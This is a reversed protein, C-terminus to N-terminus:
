RRFKYLIVVANDCRVTGFMRICAASWLSRYVIYPQPVILSAFGNVGSACQSRLGGKPLSRIHCSQDLRKAPGESKGLIYFNEVTDDTLFQM